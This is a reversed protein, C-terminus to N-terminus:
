GTGFGLTALAPNAAGSTPQMGGAEDSLEPQTLGDREWLIRLFTWHGFSVGHAALRWQLARVFGRWADKTLHALRDPKKIPDGEARESVAPDRPVGRHHRAGMRRRAAAGQGRRGRCVARRDGRRAARGAA